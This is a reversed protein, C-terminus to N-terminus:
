RAREFVANYGVALSAGTRVHIAWTTLTRWVRPAEGELRLLRLGAPQSGM